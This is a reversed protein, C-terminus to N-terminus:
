LKTQQHGMSATSIEKCKPDSDCLGFWQQSLLISRHRAAHCTDIPSWTQALVNFAVRVKKFPYTKNKEINYCRVLDFLLCVVSKPISDEAGTRHM